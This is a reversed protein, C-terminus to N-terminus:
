EDTLQQLAADIEQDTMERPTSQPTEPVIKEEKARERRRQTIGAQNELLKLLKRSEALDFDVEPGPKKEREEELEDIKMELDSIEIMVTSNDNVKKSVAKWEPDDRFGPKMKAELEKEAIAAPDISDPENNKEGAPKSDREVVEYKSYLWFGALLLGTVIIIQPYYIFICLVFIVFVFLGM